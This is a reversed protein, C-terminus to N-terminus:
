TPMDTARGAKEDDALADLALSLQRDIRRSLPALRQRARHMLDFDEAYSLGSIARDRLDQDTPRKVCLFAITGNRVFTLPEFHDAWLEMQVALWPFRSHIMDQQLVISAGPKLHPWFIAAHRDASARTKSADHILVDIPTSDWRAQNIDGPHFVVHPAFPALLQQSLALISDGEFQPIGASYLVKRKAKPAATFRDFAHVVGGTTGDINGAIMGGALRATSGGVFSGLDVIVGGGAGFAAGLWFYFKSEDRHLM